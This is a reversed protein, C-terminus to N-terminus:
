KDRETKGRTDLFGLRTDLNEAIRHWVGVFPTNLENSCFLLDRLAQEVEEVFDALDTRYSVDSTQSILRGIPCM